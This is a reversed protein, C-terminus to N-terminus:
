LAALVFPSNSSCHKLAWLCYHVASSMEEVAVCANPRDADGVCHFTLRCRHSFPVTCDDDGRNLPM